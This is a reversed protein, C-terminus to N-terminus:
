NQMGFPVNPVLPLLPFGFQDKLKGLSIIILAGDGFGKTNETTLVIGLGELGV